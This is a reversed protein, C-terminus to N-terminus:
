RVVDDNVIQAEKTFRVVARTGNRGISRAREITRGVADARVDRRDAVIGILVIKAAVHVRAHVTRRGRRARDHWDRLPPEM